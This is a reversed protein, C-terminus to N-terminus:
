AVHDVASCESWDSNLPSSKLFYLLEILINKEIKVRFELIKFYFVANLDM